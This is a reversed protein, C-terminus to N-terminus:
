PTVPQKFVYQEEEDPVVGDLYRTDEWLLRWVTPRGEWRPADDPMGITPAHAGQHLYNPCGDREFDGNVPPLPRRFLGAVGGGWEVKVPEWIGFCPITAGTPVLVVDPPAPVPPLDPHALLERLRLSPIYDDSHIKRPDKIPAPVDSHKPQLVAFNEGQAEVLRSVARRIDPWMRSRLAPDNAIGYASRWEANTWVDIIRQAESFHGKRGLFKFCTRDGKRLWEVGLAFSSHCFACLAMDSRSIPPDPDNKWADEYASKVIELLDDFYRLARTWATLSSAMKLHHFFARREPETPIPYSKMM